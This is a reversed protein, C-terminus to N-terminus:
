SKARFMMGNYVRSFRRTRLSVRLESDLLNLFGPSRFVIFSAQKTRSIDPMTGSTSPHAALAPVELKCGALAKVRGTLAVRCGKPELNPVVASVLEWPVSLVDCAVSLAECGDFSVDDCNTLPAEFRAKPLTLKPLLLTKSTVRVFAPLALMAIEFTLTEPGPNLALPMDWPLKKAGPCVASIFTVKAGDPLALTDPPTVIELVAAFGVVTMPKDPAPTWGVIVEMVTDGAFWVTGTPPWNCNLATSLRPLSTVEETTQLLESGEITDMEDLPNAAPSAPPV